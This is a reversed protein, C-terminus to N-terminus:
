QYIRKELIKTLTEMALSMIFGMVAVVFIYAYVEAYKFANTSWLIMYGIGKNAGLMEATVVSIFGTGIAIKIGNMIECLAMPIKVRVAISIRNAGDLSAAGIVDKDVSQMGYVTSIFVPPFATWIIVAIRSSDGIGLVALILPFLAIAPIGRMFHVVGSVVAKVPASIDIVAGLIFGATAGTLIGYMLISTTSVLHSGFKANDPLELIAHIVSTMPPIAPSHSVYHLLNWIVLIM